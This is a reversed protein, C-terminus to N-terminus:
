RLANSTIVENTGSHIMSKTAETLLWEKCLLDQYPVLGSIEYQRVSTYVM